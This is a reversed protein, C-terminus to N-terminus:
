AELGNPLLFEHHKSCSMYINAPIDFLWSKKFKGNKLKSLERWCGATLQSSDFSTKHYHSIYNFKKQDCLCSHRWLATCGFSTESPLDSITLSCTTSVKPMDCPETAIRLITVGKSVIAIVFSNRFLIQCKEVVVQVIRRKTKYGQVNCPNVMVCRLSLLQRLLLNKKRIQASFPLPSDKLLILYNKRKVRKKRTSWKGLTKRISSTVVSDCRDNEVQIVLALTM